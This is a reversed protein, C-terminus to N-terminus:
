EEAPEASNTQVLLKRKKWVGSFFYIGGPVATAYAALGYGLFLGFMGWNFVFGFIYSLSIRAVVGDLLAFILSVKANGIGQIFPNFGQMTALAPFAFIITTIFMHALDLVEADTTFVSFIQRPWISFM